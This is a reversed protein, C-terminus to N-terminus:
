FGVFVPEPELAIGFRESVRSQILDKLAIIEAASAGGFNVLALSHRTSIGANGLRFGKAFGANEILWAAAIKVSNEGAPFSPIDTNAADNRLREFAETAVVPNKFFSGASQSNTDAADIVMSKSRRIQLVAERIEALTPQKGAFREVLDKYTPQPRDNKALQYTVSMVVYRGRHTTNFISRRYSFGCDANALTVTVRQERDFCRVSVITDSVEQGYAGVNQVPTGGVSGPIGSLSEFGALGRAVVAAVLPDWDEGAAATVRGDADVGVGKIGIQLVVGDLGADSVLINSGGGLVFVDVGNQAAFAFAHGVQAESVARVFYRAPGGIKLTTLPALPVNQLIDPKDTM